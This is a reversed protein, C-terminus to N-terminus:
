VQTRPWTQKRRKNLTLYGRANELTDLDDRFHGLGLNCNTCLLGRFVNSDHCHDVKIEDIDTPQKCIECCGDLTEYYSLFEEDTLGFRRWRLSKDRQRIAELNEERYDKYCQRCPSSGWISNKKPYFGHEIDLWESCSQCKKWPKGNRLEFEGRTTNHGSIFRRVEGKRVEGAVAHKAPKLKEGCGCECYKVLEGTEYPTPPKFSSHGRVYRASEGKVIGRAKNTQNYIPATQGCGCQCKGKEVM